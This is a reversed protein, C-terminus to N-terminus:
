EWVKTFKAIKRISAMREKAIELRRMAVDLRAERVDVGFYDRQKKATEQCRRLTVIDTYNKNIESDLSLIEESIAYRRKITYITYLIASIKNEFTHVLEGNRDVVDCVHNPYVNLRYLGIRYGNKVPICISTNRQDQLKGLERETWVKIYRAALDVIESGESTLEFNSKEAQPKKAYRKRTRSRAM